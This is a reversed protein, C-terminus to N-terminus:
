LREQHKMTSVSDETPNKLRRSTPLTPSTGSIGSGRPSAFEVMFVSASHVESVDTVSGMHVRHLYELAFDAEDIHIMIYFSLIEINM